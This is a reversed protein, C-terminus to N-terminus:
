DLVLSLAARAPIEPLGPACRRVMAFPRGNEAPIRLLVREKGFAKALSRLVTEDPPAALETIRLADGEPQCVAYHDCNNYTFALVKGGLLGNELGRYELSPPDWAGYLAWSSFWRDRLPGLDSLKAERLPITEGPSVTREIQLVPFAPEFGRDGYFSFLDQKAPVLVAAACGRETLRRCSEELLATSLGRGRHDPDTAVAYVYRAPFTKGELVLTLPLLYLASRLGGLTEAAMAEARPFCDRFFLDLYADGDGFVTKWLARLSPVDGPGASRLIM